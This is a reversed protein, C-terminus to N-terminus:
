RILLIVLYNIPWFLVSNPTSAPATISPCPHPDSLPEGQLPKFFPVSALEGRILECPALCHQTSGLWLVRPARNEGSCRRAAWLSWTVMKFPVTGKRKQSRKWNLFDVDWGKWSCLLDPCALRSSQGQSRWSSLHPAPRPVGCQVRPPCFTKPPPSQPLSSGAPIRTKEKQFAPYPFAEKRKGM